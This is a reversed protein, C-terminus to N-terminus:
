VRVCQSTISLCNPRNLLNSKRLDNICDYMKNFKYLVEEDTEQPLERIEAPIKDGYRTNYYGIKVIFKGRKNMYKQELERTHKALEDGSLNLTKPRGTGKTGKLVYYRVPEDTDRIIRPRGVLRRENNNTNITEM